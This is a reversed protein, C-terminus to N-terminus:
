GGWPERSLFGATAADRHRRLLFILHTQQVYILHHNLGLLGCIQQCHPFPATPGTPRGSAWPCLRHHHYPLLPHQPHVPLLVQRESGESSGLVRCKPAQCRHWLLWCWWRQLPVVPVPQFEFCSIRNHAEPRPGPAPLLDPPKSILTQKSQPELMLRGECCPAPPPLRGELANKARGPAAPPHETKCPSWKTPLYRQRRHWFSNLESLPTLYWM